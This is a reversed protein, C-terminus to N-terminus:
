PGLGVRLGGGLGLVPLGWRAVPASAFVVVAEPLAVGVSGAAYLAVSDSIALSAGLELALGFLWGDDVAGVGPGGTAGSTWVYRAGARLSAWLDVPDRLPHLSLDLAAAAFLVDARADGRVLSVPVTPVSVRAGLALFPALHGDVQVELALAPDVGGVGFLGSAGVRLLLSPPARVAPAAESPLAVLADIARPVPEESLRLELLSARLAEVARHALVADDGGAGDIQRLVTKGTLRDTAWIEVGRENPALSLIAIAGLRAATEELTARDLPVPPELVIARFGRSALEARVRTCTARLEPPAQVAVRPAEDAPAAPEDADVARPALPLLAALLGSVVWRAIVAGLTASTAPGPARHAESV